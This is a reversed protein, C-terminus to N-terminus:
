VQGIKMVLGLRKFPQPEVTFSLEKGGTPTAFPDDKPTKGGRLVTVNIAEDQRAALIKSLERWDHVPQGDVAVILDDGQFCTELGSASGPRMLTDASPAPAESPQDTMPTGPYDLVRKAHGAPTFPDVPFDTALRLSRPSIIGISALGKGKQSQRPKLTMKRLESQDPERITLHIGKELDGLTVGGRLETFTPYQKNDLQIIEDGVQLNAEWAPSGPATESIICPLYPVGVGYAIVAFVFAICLNMLVGASIIAMRQPVSKALYSRLHVRYTEGDPGIIEKTEAEGVAEAQARQMEESIKAPNDDQGLMKVYGGLPLIGIGYETEGWKKRILASPFRIPGIKIPVDFGLYFKDCRVGCLKAVLFHGLEHVFIVASLGIVVAAIAWIMNWTSVAFIYMGM